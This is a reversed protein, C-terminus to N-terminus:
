PVTVWGTIVPLRASALQLAEGGTALILMIKNGATYAIWQGDPSWALDSSSHEIEVDRVPKAGEDTVEFIRVIPGWQGALYRSDPSWTFPGDGNFPGRQSNACTSPDGLCETDLLYLGLLDSTGAGGLGRNYAIWRGDPSWAPLGCM